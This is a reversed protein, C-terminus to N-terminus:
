NGSRVPRICFSGNHLYDWGVGGYSFNVVWMKDSDHKDGTWIYRQGSDFVPDIYLDGNKDGPELLSSAEKVNPFRWDNYGAYKNINLTRLWRKADKLNMYNTSGSQHWMLGTAHNIVVKDGNISVVEYDHKITSYGSFGWKKKERISINPIAQIDNISLNRYLSHQNMDPSRSPKQEVAPQNRSSALKKYNEWYKIREMARSRITEDETSYPNDSKFSGLIRQWIVAKEGANLYADKDYKLAEGYASRLRTQWKSWKTKVANLKVQDELRKKRIKEVEDFDLVDFEEPDPPLVLDRQSYSEFDLKNSLPFVFDGEDLDPDNIKGYQPTQGSNYGIVKDHLYMGLETGTVYRDKNLDAEGKLARVFSPTFVSQAPVEEGASGATIFQRVPKSTISTIHPPVKPLAKTKFITGSFCSDFLFITHKAEIKRSWTLIQSMSIAKRLFGIEDKRPDPADSPVIYGKKGNERTYGHGSFFFLLRNQEFYGYENIFDEIAKTLKKSTPNLVKVTKFGNKTLATEVQEIEHSISELDPWGSVYDSVGILLAYSGKYLVVQRGRKDMISVVNLGRTEKALLPISKCLVLITLIVSLIQISRKM